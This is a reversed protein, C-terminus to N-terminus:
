HIAWAGYTMENVVARVVQVPEIGKRLVQGVKNSAATVQWGISGATLVVIPLHRFQPDSRAQTLWQVGNVGPMSLDLLVADPKLYALAKFASEGDNAVAVKFGADSFYTEYVSTVVPDDDIILVTKPDQLRFIPVANM